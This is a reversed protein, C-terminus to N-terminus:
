RTQPSWPTASAPTLAKGASTVACITSFKRFPPAAILTNVRSCPSASSTTSTPTRAGSGADGPSTFQRTALPVRLKTSCGAMVGASAPAAMLAPMAAHQAVRLLALTIPKPSIPMALVDAAAQTILRRVPRGSSAQVPRPVPSSSAPTARLRSM